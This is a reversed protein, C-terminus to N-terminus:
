HRDGTELSVGASYLCSGYTAPTFYHIACWYYRWATHDAIFSAASNGALYYTEFNEVVRKPPLRQLGLLLRCNKCYPQYRQNFNYLVRWQTQQQPLYYTVFNRVQFTHSDYQFWKFSPNNGFVPSIAPTFSDFIEHHGDLDFLEFADIHLHGTFIGTITSAYTSLLSLFQHTYHPKWFSTITNNRLSSYVNIGVPIHFVLWVKRHQAAAMVLQKKLWVLEDRATDSLHTGEAKTSFLVTNLVLIRDKPSGPPVVSYYGAIPFQKLFRFANHKNHLLSGWINSLDDYFVGKPASYYDGQYSDNNGVAAYVPLDPLAAQIQLTLFQLTKKVFSEYGAQTTDSAYTQYNKQYDHALYDGILIVFQSHHQKAVASIEMLSSHLLADNTDIPQHSIKKSGYHEFIIQWQRANTQMLRKIIPCPLQKPVCTDFPNFHIDAISIFSNTAAISSLSMFFIIIFAVLRLM